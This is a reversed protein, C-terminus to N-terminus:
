PQTSHASYRVIQHGSAQLSRALWFRFRTWGQRAMWLGILAGLFALGVDTVDPDRGKIWGQACELGVSMTLASAVVAVTARRGGAVLLPLCFGLPFYMLLLELAHSVVQFSTWQYYALFPFWNVDQFRASLTFPSLMEMAASVATAM